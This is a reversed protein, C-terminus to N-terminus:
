KKDIRIEFVDTDKYSHHTENNKRTSGTAKMTHVSLKIKNREKKLPLTVQEDTGAVPNFYRKMWAPQVKFMKADIDKSYFIHLTTEKTGAAVHFRDKKPTLYSLLQNINDLEGGRNSGPYRNTEAPPETVGPCGPGTIMGTIRFDSAKPVLTIDEPLLWSEDYDVWPEIEYRRMGPKAPSILRLGVRAKGPSMYLGWLAANNETIGYPSASGYDAHIAVPTHTHKSLTHDGEYGPKGDAYPLNVPDFSVSCSLDLLLDDVIGKNELPSKISYVYEMLGDPRMFYEVSIITASIDEDRLTADKLEVASATQMIFNSVLLAIIKKIKM